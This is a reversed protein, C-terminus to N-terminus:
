DPRTFRGVVFGATRRWVRVVGLHPHLTTFPYDAIKVKAASIKSILTPNVPM